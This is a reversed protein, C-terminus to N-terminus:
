RRPSRGLPPRATTSASVSGPSRPTTPSPRRPRPARAIPRGPGPAPGLEALLGALTPGARAAGPANWGRAPRRQGGARRANAGAGRVLPRPGRVVAGAGGGPAGDRRLARVAEASPKTVLIEYHIKARDLEAKRARLRAASSPGGPSCSSSPWGSWPRSGAPARELLKELAQREREHDGSRAAFWARLLPGGRAPRPRAPSARPGGTRRGRRGDGPGPGAPEELGRRRAPTAAPLRRAM